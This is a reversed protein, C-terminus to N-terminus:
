QPPVKTVLLIPFKFYMEEEQAADLEGLYADIVETCFLPYEEAGVLLIDDGLQAGMRYFDDNALRHEETLADELVFVYYGKETPVRNLCSCRYSM